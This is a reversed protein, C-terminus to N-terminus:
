KFCDRKFNNRRGKENLNGKLNKDPFSIKEAKNMNM